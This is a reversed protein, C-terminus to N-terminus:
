GIHRYLLHGALVLLRDPLYSFVSRAVRMKWGEDAHLIEHHPPFRYYTLTDRRAGWRDKFTILGENDADSRGLDYERAGRQKAERIAHWLLIPTGGLNRYKLDLCSYKYYHRERFWLTIISAIPIGRLRAVRISVHDGMRQMLARFWSQPPPPLKHKRRTMLMLHFFEGLLAEDRGSVVEVGEREARKVSQRIATQHCQRFLCELDPALDLSHVCADRGNWHGKEAPPPLTEALRPRWEVYSWRGDAAESRLAALLEGLAEPGDVLPQCHDSFPLSVIRRGTMWSAVRCFLMGSQLPRGQPSTTYAVPEYGYVAKLCELWPRTHFVGAQPHRDVLESWRPDTLPDLCFVAM